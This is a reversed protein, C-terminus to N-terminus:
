EIDNSMGEKRKNQFDAACRLFNEGLFRNGEFYIHPFGAYLNKGHYGTHWSRNGFPKEALFAKGHNETDWYHFEHANFQQGKEGFLGDREITMRVYGFRRLKKCRFGNGSFVGIMSWLKGDEDELAEHLYLYGGCEAITPLGNQIATKIEERLRENKSLERAYLEPYGGGLLLGDIAEPLHDDSLPSFYVLEVGRATLFDLNDQYYFCFAEDKAVAIRLSYQKGESNDDAIELPVAQKALALIAEINITEMMVEATTEIKQQLDIIENAMILGLHRSKLAIEPMKPLYGLVLIGLEKEIIEKLTLYVNQSVQNLIVGAIQNEERFTLYGKIQAVASISMGACNIILVVPTKTVQSLHYSSSFTERGMLGDYFGMVGEIIALDYSESNKQLLAKVKEEDTLFLDLNRSAVGIIEQHFLPDIYDPGSKFSIPNLGRNLLVKLVGCTITTKGSGSSAAALMLRPKNLIAM